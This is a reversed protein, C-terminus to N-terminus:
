LAINVSYLMEPYVKLKNSILRALKAHEGGEVKQLKLDLLM